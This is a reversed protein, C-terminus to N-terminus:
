LTANMDMISLTMISLTMISLTMISLTMLSLTMIVLTIHQTDNVCFTAILVVLSPTVVRLTMIRLTTMVSLTMLTFTMLSFTTAGCYLVPHKLLSCYNLTSTMVPHKGVLFHSTLCKENEVFTNRKQQSPM